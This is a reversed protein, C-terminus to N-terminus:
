DSKNVYDSNERNDAFIVMEMRCEVSETDKNTKEIHLRTIWVDAPLCELGHVLAFVEAFSGTCGFSLPLESVYEKPAVPQPDFRTIRVGSAMEIRHISAYLDAIHAVRPATDRWRERYQCASRLEQEAAVMAAGRSGAHSLHEQKERIQLRFDAATQQGPLFVFVLYAVAGAALPLTVLWSGRLSNQNM